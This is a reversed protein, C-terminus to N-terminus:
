IWRRRKIVVSKIDQSVDDMISIYKEDWMKSGTQDGRILSFESNIGYIYGQVLLRNNFNIVEDTESLSEPVYQYDVLYNGNTLPILGDVVRIKYNDFEDCVRRIKYPNYKLKDLDLYGDVVDVFEKYYLPCYKIAIHKMVNNFCELLVNFNFLVEDDATPKILQSETDDTQVGDTTGSTDGTTDDSTTDESNDTQTQSETDNTTDVSLTSLQSNTENVLPLDPVEGSSSINDSDNNDITTDQDINSDLKKYYEQLKIIYDRVDNLQLYECAKKIVEIVKM